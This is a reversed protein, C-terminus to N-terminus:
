LGTVLSAVDMESWEWEFMKKDVKLKHSNTDIHLFDTIESIQEPSTISQFIQNGPFMLCCIWHFYYGFREIFEFFRTNIAWKQDMKSRNPGFCNELFELVTVWLKMYNELAMGFHHFELFIGPCVSFHLSPHFSPCVRKSLVRGDVDPPLFFLNSIEMLIWYFYVSINWINKYLNQQLETMSFLLVM